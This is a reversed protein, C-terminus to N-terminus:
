LSEIVGTMNLRLIVSSSSSKLKVDSHLIVGENGINTCFKEGYLLHTTRPLLNNVFHM